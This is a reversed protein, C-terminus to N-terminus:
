VAVLAGPQDQIRVSVDTPYAGTACATCLKGLPRAVGRGVGEVSLFALSDAGIYDCMQKISRGVALLEERRGTDMGYVCSFLYQPAPVRVHIERAGNERLMRILERSITGRIISDDVLAVDQGEVLQRDINFKARAIAERAAQNPGLFSRLDVGREKKVGEVMPLNLAAAYGEAALIGSEPVGVVVGKALPHEMALEAGFRRRVDGVRQGHFINDPKSFYFYEYMCAKESPAAFQEQRIGTEDIVMIQGPEIEETFAAGVANLARVESALVQGGDILEGRVFPRFGQPDRAAALQDGDTILLSYAGRLKTLVKRLAAVMNRGPEHDRYLDILGVAAETDTVYNARDLGHDSLLSEINAFEGNCALATDGDRGMMPQAARQKSSVKVMTGYRDHGIALRGLPPLVSHLSRGEDFVEKVNGVDKHIHLSGDADAVVIGAADQGRHKLGVLGAYTLEALAQGPAYVGFVGCEEQPKDLAAAEGQFPLEAKPSPSVCNM